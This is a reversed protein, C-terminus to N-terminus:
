SCNARGKQHLITLVRLGEQRVKRVRFYIETLRSRFAAASGFGSARFKALDVVGHPRGLRQAGRHRTSVRV